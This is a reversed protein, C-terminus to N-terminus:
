KLLEWPELGYVQAAAVLIAVTTNPYDETEIRAILQRHVGMLEAAREQTLGKAHRLERLRTALQKMAKGVRKAM